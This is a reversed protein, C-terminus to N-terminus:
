GAKELLDGQYVSMSAQSIMEDGRRVFCDFNGLNEDSWVETVTVLLEDGAELWEVALTMERCSMLLGLKIPKGQKRSKLGAFAAISQAMYELTILAPLQGEHMFPSSKTLRVRATLTLGGTEVVEDILIMPPRHPVLEQM